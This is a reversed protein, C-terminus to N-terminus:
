FASPKSLKIEFVRDTLWSRDLVKTSYIQVDQERSSIPKM